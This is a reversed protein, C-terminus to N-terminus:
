LIKKLCWFVNACKRLKKNWRKRMEKKSNLFVDEKAKEIEKLAHEINSHYWDEIEFFPIIIGWM